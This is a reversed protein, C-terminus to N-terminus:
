TLEASVRDDQCEIRRVPARHAAILHREVVLHEGLELPVARLENAYRDIPGPAVVREGCRALQMEWEHGVELGLTEDCSGIADVAVLVAGGIARQEHDVGTADDPPAM